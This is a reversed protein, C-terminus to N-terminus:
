DFLFIASTTVVTAPSAGAGVVVFCIISEVDDSGLIM